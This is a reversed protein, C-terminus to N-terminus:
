GKEDIGTAQLYSNKKPSIWVNKWAPPIVLGEIRELHSENTLKQNDRDLFIFGRGRKKRIIGPQTDRIYVLGKPLEAATVM